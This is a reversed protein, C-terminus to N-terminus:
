KEGLMNLFQQETIRKTNLKIAKKNKSSSSNFDNVVLYDLNKSVGAVLGGNEKVMAELEDRSYEMSGTFCFSLGNIKSSIQQHPKWNEVEVYNMMTNMSDIKKSIAAKLGLATNDGFKPITAIFDSDQCVDIFESITIEKNLHNLIAEFRSKGFGQLGFGDMFNVINTKSTLLTAKNLIKFKGPGFGDLEMLKQDGNLGLNYFDPLTEAIKNTVILEITEWAIGKADHSTYWSLINRVKKTLSNPNTSVLYVLEEGNPNVERELPYGEADHTPIKIAVGDDSHISVKEIYPIVDNRRSVLVLDNIKVNMKQIFDINNLSVREITVDNLQLPELVAVPSFRGGSDQWIVDILKTVGQEPPFKYAVARDPSDWKDDQIDNTKVVLGDIDWDLSKRTKDIYQEYVTQIEEFNKCLTNNVTVFGLKKIFKLADSETKINLEKWNMVSYIKVNLYHCNKGNLEKAAGAASNRCNKGGVIELKSKYLLIEGRVILEDNFNITKPVNNMKIVNRTIDEGIPSGGSDQGRTIAKDLKGNKYILKISTGDLKEEVIFGNKYPRSWEILPDLNTVKSISGMKYTEHVYKEWRDKNKSTIKQVEDHKADVQKLLKNKPDLQALRDKLGDYEDDSIESVGFAYYQTNYNQIQQELKLIEQRSMNNDKLNQNSLITLREM